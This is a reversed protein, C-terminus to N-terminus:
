ESLQDRLFLVALVSPTAGTRFLIQHPAVAAAAAQAQFGAAQMEPTAAIEEM